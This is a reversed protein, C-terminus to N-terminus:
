VSQRSYDIHVDAWRTVGPPIVGLYDPNLGDYCGSTDFGMVHSTATYYPYVDIHCAPSLRFGDTTFNEFYAAQTRPQRFGTHGRRGAASLSAAGLACSFVLRKVLHVM